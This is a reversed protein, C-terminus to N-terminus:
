LGDNTRQGPNIVLMLRGENTSEIPPSRHIAPTDESWIKGKLLAVDGAQMQQIVEPDCSNAMDGSDLWQTGQGLYTTILRASVYDSHFKKCANTTVHKLRIEVYDSQMIDAFRNALMLIDAHLLDRVAGREHGAGDMAESLTDPLDDIDVMFRTDVINDLKLGLLSSLIPREWIAISVNEERIADLTQANDAIRAISREKVSLNM